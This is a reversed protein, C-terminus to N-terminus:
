RGISKKRATRVFIREVPLGLALVRLVQRLKGHVYSEIFFNSLLDILYRDGGGPHIYEDYLPAIDTLREATSLGPHSGRPLYIVTPVPVFAVRCERMDLFQQWMYKDTATDPPTTRWGFPLRRYFALTHTVMSLPISPEGSNRYKPNSFDLLERGRFGGDRTKVVRLSHAFDAEGLADLMRSVHNPLMLDRDCLYCVIRGRASKLAEHRHPEGRREHKPHDFFRVRPDESVLAAIVQRTQDNVGDGIVFVEINRISQRLVSGISYPLLPGRDGTTPVIVTAAIQINDTDLERGRWGSAPNM